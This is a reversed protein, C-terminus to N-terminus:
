EDASEREPLEALLSALMEDDAEALEREMIRDALDALNATEFVLQLPIEIGHRVDLLSVFRTALLSHGGLDFFNDLVGIEDPRRELVEAASEVLTEELPTRPAVREKAAPADAEIAALARRDVKGNATLPLDPLQVFVSPVLAEPLRARLSARLDDLTADGVWFARLVKDVVVVAGRRVGPTALLAAEAEGPEVRFGRIKVQFDMRGQFELNGDARWRV